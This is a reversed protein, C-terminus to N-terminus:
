KQLELVKNEDKQKLKLKQPSIAVIQWKKEKNNQKLMLQKEEIQWAGEKNNELFAGESYFFFRDENEINRWEGLIKQELTKQKWIIEQSIKQITITKGQFNVEAQPPQPSIKQTKKLELVKNPISDPFQWLMGNILSPTFVQPHNKNELKEKFILLGKYERIELSDVFPQWAELQGIEDGLDGISIYLQAPLSDNKKAFAAEYELAVQEDWWLSPSISIYKQFLNKSHFLTYTLFFGGYSYGTLCTELTDVKYNKEVLPMVEFVLFKLFNEAGNHSERVLFDKSRAKWYYKDQEETYGIGVTIFQLKGMQQLSDIIYFQQLVEFDADPHYVVPYLRRDQPVDQYDPPLKIYLQYSEKTFESDIQYIDLQKKPFNPISDQTQLSDTQQENEQAFLLFPILFLIIFFSLKDM